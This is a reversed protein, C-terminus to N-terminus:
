EMFEVEIKEIADKATMEGTIVAEVLISLERPYAPQAYFEMRYGDNVVSEVTRAYIELMEPPYGPASVRPVLYEVAYLAAGAVQEGVLERFNDSEAIAQRAPLAKGLPHSSLFQIWSWAAPVNKCRASIYYGQGRYLTSETQAGMPLPIAGWEFPWPAALHHFGWGDRDALFGIWMAAQQERFFGYTDGYDVYKPQPMVGYLRSLDAYWQLAEALRPDDWGFIDSGHQYIFPIFDGWRPNSVLGYYGTAPRGQGTVTTMLQATSLLDEWTWGIQPYAVGREDFYEQNFYLLQMDIEAPLAWLVGDWSFMELSRPYFDAPSLESAQDLLPEISQIVPNEPSSLSPDPWWIFADVGSDVERIIKGGPSARLKITINPYKKQFEDALAQYRKWDPSEPYVFTITVPEPSIERGVCASLSNVVLIILVFCYLSWKKM